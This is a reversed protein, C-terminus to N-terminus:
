LLGKAEKVLRMTENASENAKVAGHELVEIMRRRGTETGLLEGIRERTPAIRSNVADAVVTKLASKSSERFRLALDKVSSPNEDCGASGGGGGDKGNGNSYEVHFLIDLLNAM